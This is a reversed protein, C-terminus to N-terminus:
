MVINAVSTSTYGFGVYKQTSVNAQSVETHAIHMITFM